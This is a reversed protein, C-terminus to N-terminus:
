FEFGGRRKRRLVILRGLFYAGGGGFVVGSGGYLAVDRLGLIIARRESVAELNSYPCAMAALTLQSAMEQSYFFAFAFGLALGYSILREFRLM